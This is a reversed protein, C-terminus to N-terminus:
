RHAAFHPASPRRVRVTPRAPAPRRGCVSSPRRPPPAARSYTPPTRPRPAMASTCASRSSGRRGATRTAAAATAAAAAAATPPGRGATRRAYAVGGGGDPGAVGSSRRPPALWLSATGDGLSMRCCKSRNPLWASPVSVRTSAYPLLQITALLTRISPGTTSLLRKRRRQFTSAGSRSVGSAKAM